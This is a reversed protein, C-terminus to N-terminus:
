GPGARLRWWRYRLHAKVVRAAQVARAFPTPPWQFIRRALAAEEDADAGQTRLRVLGDWYQCWLDFYYADLSAILGQYQGFQPSPMPGPPHAEHRVLPRRNEIAADAHCMLIATYSDDWVGEAAIYPRFLHRHALWWATKVAFLDVGALEMGLSAGTAGDFDERSFIYAEKGADLIWQVAAQSVLIDANTFCFYEIRRAAAEAALANFVESMLPKTAGRRRSVGTSTQTLVALTRVGDVDHPRDAFQVNVLEVGHLALLSRVGNDQRRASAGTAAFTHTGILVRPAAPNTASVKEPM